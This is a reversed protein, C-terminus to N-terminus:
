PLLSHTSGGQTTRAAMESLHLGADLVLQADTLKHQSRLKQVEQLLERAERGREM